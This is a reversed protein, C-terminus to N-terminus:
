TGYNDRPTYNPNTQYHGPIYDGGSTTYPNVYHDSPNSGTGYGRPYYQAVALSSCSLLMSLAVVLVKMKEGKQLASFGHASQILNSPDLCLKSSIEGTAYIDVQPPLTINHSEPERSGGRRPDSLPGM